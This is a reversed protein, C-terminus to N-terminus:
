LPYGLEDVPLGWERRLYRCEERAFDEIRDKWVTPLEVSAKEGKTPVKLGSIGLMKEREKKSSRRFRFRRWPSRYVGKLREVSSAALRRHAHKAASLHVGEVPDVGMFDCIGAIFAEPDRQLQEFLFVGVNARGFVAVHAELIQQSLLLSFRGKTKKNWNWSLWDDVTFYGTLRRRDRAYKLNNGGLRQLYESELLRLPHRAVFIIKSPGFVREINQALREQREYGGFCLGERSAVTLRGAVLGPRSVEEVSQKWEDLTRDSQPHPLNKIIGEITPTRYATPGWGKGLFELKSHDAFLHRQLTTSAAKPLGIHICASPRDPRLSDSM